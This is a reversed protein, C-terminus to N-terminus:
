FLIGINFLKKKNKTMLSGIIKSGQIRSSNKGSGPDMSM